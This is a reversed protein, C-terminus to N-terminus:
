AAPDEIRTLPNDRAALPLRVRGGVRQSEFCGVIMEMDARAEVANMVPQRNEAISALLDRVALENAMLQGGDALPEPQGIGASSVDQWSKGSRGPSWAPDRIFKVAPLYGTLIEVIGETGYIQLAFRSPSKGAGRQSSFYATAGGSMRYMAEVGDGALLGLGENGAAVDRRRIPQGQATVSAFCWEPEGGFLRMLDVIHTGLVWLDESGGRQDEKGRGRFELVRGIKGAAILQKVAAIKPSYRTPLAVAVRAHTMECKNVIDDAEALTRCLPKEVFVHIGRGVAAMIMEHHQDVWRQCVAVVDPKVADLMQRYDAFTKDVKLTEAMKALGAPDDDAIGVVEIEPIREFVSALDHGYDGHGTRGIIALRQQM